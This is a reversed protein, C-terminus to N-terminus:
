VSRRKQVPTRGASTVTGNPDGDWAAQVDSFSSARPVRPETCAPGWRDPCLRSAASMPSPGAPSSARPM